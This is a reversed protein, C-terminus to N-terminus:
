NRTIMRRVIRRAVKYPDSKRREVQSVFKALEQTSALEQLTIDEFYRKVADIIEKQTREEDM